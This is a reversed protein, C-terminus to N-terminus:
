RLALMRHLKAGGHGVHEIRRVGLPEIRHRGVFAQAPALEELPRRAGGTDAEPQRRREPGVPQDGGRGRGLAAGRPAGSAVDGDVGVDDHHHLVPGEVVEEAPHGVGVAALGPQCVEVAGAVGEGRM